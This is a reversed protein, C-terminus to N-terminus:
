NMVKIEIQKRQANEAKPLTIELIGYEYKAEINEHGIVEPFSLKKSFKGYNFQNLHVTENEQLQRPQTECSVILERQTAQLEIKDPAVGPVMLRVCYQTPTETVEVPLTHSLSRSDGNPSVPEFIRNIQDRLISMEELPSFRILAM